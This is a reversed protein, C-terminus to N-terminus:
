SREVLWTTGDSSGGWPKIDFRPTGSALLRLTQGIKKASLDLEAAVHRSKIFLREEDLEKELYALVRAEPSDSNLATM